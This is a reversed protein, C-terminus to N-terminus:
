DVVVTGSISHCSRCFSFEVAPDNPLFALSVTPAPEQAISALSHNVEIGCGSCRPNACYPQFSSGHVLAGGVQTFEEGLQALALRDQPSLFSEDIIASRFVAARYQDYPIAELHAPHSGLQEELLTAATSAAPSHLEVSRDAGLSYSIYGEAFDMLLPLEHAAEPFRLFSLVPDRLDLTLLRAFRSSDLQTSM